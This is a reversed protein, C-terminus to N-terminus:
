KATLGAWAQRASQRIMRWRHPDGHLVSSMVNTAQKSVRCDVYGFARDGNRV